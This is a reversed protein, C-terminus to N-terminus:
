SPSIVEFGNHPNGLASPILTAQASVITSRFTRKKSARTEIHYLISASALGYEVGGVSSNDNETRSTTFHSMVM